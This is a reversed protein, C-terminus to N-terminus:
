FSDYRSTKNGKKEAHSTMRLDNQIMKSETSENNTLKKTLLMMDKGGNCGAMWGSLKRAFTLWCRGRSVERPSGSGRTSGVRRDSRSVDAKITAMSLPLSAKLPAAMCALRGWSTVVRM